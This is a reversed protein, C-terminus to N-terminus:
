RQRIKEKYTFSGGVPMGLPAGFGLPFATSTYYVPSFTTYAIAAPATTVLTAGQVAQPAAAARANPDAVPGDTQTVTTTQTTTQQQQVVQPQAIAYSKTAVYTTVPTLTTTEVLQPGAVVATPLGVVAANATGCAKSKARFGFLECASCNMSCLVVAALAVLALIKSRPKM